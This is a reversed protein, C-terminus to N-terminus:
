PAQSRAREVAEELSMNGPDQDLTQRSHVIYGTVFTDIPSPLTASRKTSRQRIARLVDTLRIDARRTADIFFGLDRGGQLIGEDQLVNTLRFVIHLPLKLAHSLWGPDIRRSNDAQCESAVALTLRLASEEIFSPTLTGHLTQRRYTRLHTIVFCLRASILIILWSLDVWIITIPIAALSSYLINFKAVGIQLGFYAWTVLMYAGGGVTGAILAARAPVRTNPVLNLLLAFGLSILMWVGFRNAYPAIASGQLWDIKSIIFSNSFILLTWAALMTVTIVILILLYSLSKHWMPRPRNIEWIENFADEIRSMMSIVAGLLAVLGVIGISRFNAGEVMNFLREIWPLYDGLLIMAQIKIDAVSWLGVWQTVALVVAVMPLISLMTTYTLASAQVGVRKELFGTALILLSQLTRRLARIPLSVGEPPAWIWDLVRDIAPLVTGRHLLAFRQKIGTV